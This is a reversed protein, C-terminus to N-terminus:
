DARQIRADSYGAGKAKALTGQAAASSAFGGVRVRYLKGSPSVHGGLRRAVEAARASNSFAGVQVIVKSDAPTAPTAAAVRPAAKATPPAAHPKISAPPSVAPKARALKLPPASPAAAAVAAPIAASAAQAAAPDLKRMLVGVLPMPTDMRNPAQQGTRLLARDAEPPNVRRIRVPARDGEAGLQRAAGPSLEILNSGSMPGRREVRALITRGTKLSTVEVYSPLPLVRHALSIGTGGETSAAAYGVQDYNLTDKPTYTVGDIAFPAGLVM